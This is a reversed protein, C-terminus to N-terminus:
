ARKACGGNKGVVQQSCQMAKLARTSDVLTRSMCNACKIIYALFQADHLKAHSLMQHVVLLDAIPKKDPLNSTGKALMKHRLISAYWVILVGLGGRPFYVFL